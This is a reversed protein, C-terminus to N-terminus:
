RSLRNGIRARHCIRVAEVLEPAPVLRTITEVGPNFTAFTLANRDFSTRGIFTPIGSVRNQQGTRPGAVFVSDIPGQDITLTGDAALSYTFDGSIDNASTSTNTPGHGVSVTRATVSGTGDGNFTRVGQISFSIINSVGIPTLNADFGGPPTYSTPTIIAPSNVCVADGSFAFQGKLLQTQSQAMAPSAAMLAVLASSGIITQMAQM